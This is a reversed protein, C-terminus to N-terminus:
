VEPDYVELIKIIELTSIYIFLYQYSCLVPYHTLNEDTIVVDFLLKNKNPFLFTNLIICLSYVAYIYMAIIERLLM